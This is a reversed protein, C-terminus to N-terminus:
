SLSLEIKKGMAHALIMLTEVTTNRSGSEIKSITTRPLKSKKSLEEQTLGLSTRLERLSMVIKMYRKETEIYDREKPNLKQFVKDLPISYKQVNSKNM